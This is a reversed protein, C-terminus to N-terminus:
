LKEIYFLVVSPLDRYLLQNIQKLKAHREAKLAPDLGSTKELLVDVKTNSYGTFNAEGKTGFLPEILSYSDVEIPAAEESFLLEIGAKYGMLFFHHKKSQLEKTWKEQELYNIEVREIKMGINKLEEQLYKAIAITKIGDTHLLTPNKLRQDNVPYGAEQMLLKAQKVNYTYPQLDPDYGLMGPPVFGAPVAENSMIGTIIHNKEIAHNVAQRVRADKLVEQKLNFGLFWIGDYEKAYTVSIGFGFTM